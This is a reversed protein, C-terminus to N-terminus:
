GDISEDLGEQWSEERDYPIHIDIFAGKGAGNEFRIRCESGYYYKLRRVTNMIGIGLEQKQGPQELTDIAALVEPSFGPGTDSICLNVYSSGNIVESYATITVSVRHEMNGGYKMCNEVFPQILMHPIRVMKTEEELDIYYDFLKENRMRQIEMYNKVHELEEWLYVFSLNDKLLYRMYDATFRAMQCAMDGKGLDIMNYMFNLCNLYFHPRIQLKLYDLYMGQKELERQQIESELVNIKRFLATLESNARKLEEMESSTIEELNEGGNKVAELNNSFKRVPVLIKQYLYVVCSFILGLMILALVVMVMQVTLVTQFMGKGSILFRLHFPMNTFDKEIVEQREGCYKATGYEGAEQILFEDGLGAYLQRERDYLLIAGDGEKMVDRLPLILDEPRIWCGIYNYRMKYYKLIRTKGDESTFIKWYQSGYNKGEQGESFYKKIGEEYGNYEKVSLDLSRNEVYWGNEPFYAFFHYGDGYELAYTDFVNKLRSIYYNRYAENDTSRIAELYVNVDQEAEGEGLFLLGLKRNVNEIKEDIDNVYIDVLAGMYQTSKQRVSRNGWISVAIYIFALPVLLVLLFQLRGAMTKNKEPM